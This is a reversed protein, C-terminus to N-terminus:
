SLNLKHIRGAEAWTPLGLVISWIRGIITFEYIHNNNIGWVYVCSCM